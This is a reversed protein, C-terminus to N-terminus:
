ESRSDREGSQPRRPSAIPGLVMGALILAGGVGQLWTLSEGLLLFGFLGAFVPEMTFLIATYTATSHAQFRNMLWFSLATALLGTILVAEVLKGPWAAPLQEFLLSGGVSLVAVVAVQVVLLARYDDERVYRDVLLLHGAFAVACALTLVDGVNFSSVGGKALVFTVLGGAALVAGAWHALQVRQRLVSASLLPVVVAALGTLLGSKTASTYVLGWTQFLYGAFLAVGILAGRALTRGAIRRLSPAFLLSLVLTALLFRAVLFIFPGV